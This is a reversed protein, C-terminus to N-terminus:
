ERYEHRLVNENEDRQMVILAKENGELEERM